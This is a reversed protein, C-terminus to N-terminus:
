LEAEPELDPVLSLRHQPSLHGPMAAEIQATLGPDLRLAQPSCGIRALDEAVLPILLDPQTQMWEATATEEATPTVLGVIRARETVEADGCAVILHRSQPSARHQRDTSVEM